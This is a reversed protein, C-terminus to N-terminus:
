KERVMYTVIEIILKILTKKEITKKKKKKERQRKQWQRRNLYLLHLHHFLVAVFMMCVSDFARIPFLIENWDNGSGDVVCRFQEHGTDWRVDFLFKTEFDDCSISFLVYFPMSSCQVKDCTVTRDDMGIRYEDTVIQENSHMPRTASKSYQNSVWDATDVPVMDLSGSYDPYNSYYSIWDNQNKLTDVLTRILHCLISLFRRHVCAPM